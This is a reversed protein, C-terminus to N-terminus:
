AALWEPWLESPHCKFRCAWTDARHPTLDGVQRAKLRCIERRSVGAYEALDEESMGRLQLQEVRHLLPEIPLRRRARPYPEGYLNVAVYHIWCLKPDPSSAKLGCRLSICTM